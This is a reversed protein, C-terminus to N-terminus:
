IWSGVRGRGPSAWEVGHKKLAADYERHSRIWTGKPGLTTIFRARGEEFWTLGTGVSLTPAMSSGCPCLVTQAGRDDPVHAFVDRQAGCEPCAHAYLPM